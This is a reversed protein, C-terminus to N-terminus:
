AEATLLRDLCLSEAAALMERLEDERPVAHDLYRRARENLYLPQLDTKLLAVRDDDDAVDDILRLLDAVFDRGEVLQERDVPAATLSEVREIWAFPSRSSWADNLQAHLDLLFAPRQLTAHLPGRGTFRLRAALPRANCAILASDLTAEAADLLDQERELIDIPIDLRAWRVADLARFQLSVVGDDAIEVVYAGREGPEYPHRGQLNGSYVIAPHQERLIAGTHVHGLAWYDMGAAALDDVTCPAYNAHGGIGGVNAHLLGIAIRGSETRAFRAALNDRVDQRPYSVGYVTGREPQGPDFPVSEVEPGFRHCFAPTDLQAEWGGLHDHNGHCVFSRVGAAGLQELGAYFARQARLSRDAGDYIDGAVLLAEVRESLCLGVLNRYAQFTADLLASAVNAPAAASFGLFPSDLHLDAAHVFRISV